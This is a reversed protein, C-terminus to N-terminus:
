LMRKRRRMLGNVGEFREGIGGDREWRSKKEKSGGSYGQTFKEDEDGGGVVEQASDHAKPKLPRGHRNYLEQERMQGAEVHENVDPKPEVM